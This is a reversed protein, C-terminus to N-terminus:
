NDIEKMDSCWSMEANRYSGSRITNRGGVHEFRSYVRLKDIGLDGSFM